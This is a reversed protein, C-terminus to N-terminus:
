ANRVPPMTSLDASAIFAGNGSNNMGDALEQASAFRATWSEGGHITAEVEGTALNVVTAVTPNYSGHTGARTKM